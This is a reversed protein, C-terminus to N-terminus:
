NSRTKQRLWLAYVTMGLFTVLAPMLIYDLWGVWASAGLATLTLTAAPTVCCIGTFTTGCLGTSLLKSSM